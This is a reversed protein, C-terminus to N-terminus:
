SCSCGGAAPLIADQSQGEAVKRAALKVQDVEDRKLAFDKNKVLGLDYTLVMYGKLPLGAEKFIAKACGVECGDMVVLGSSEQAMKMFVALKGGLGALCSMNGVGEQTLELAAQNTLQGVNSAGSCALLMVNGNGTCSDTAM